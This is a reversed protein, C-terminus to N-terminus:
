YTQLEKQRSKFKKEDFNKLAIMNNFFYYSRNKINIDKIM